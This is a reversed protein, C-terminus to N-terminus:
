GRRSGCRSAEKGARASVVRRCRTGGFVSIFEYLGFGGDGENDEPVGGISVVETGSHNDFCAGCVSTM